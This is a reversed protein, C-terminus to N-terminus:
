PNVAPAPTSAASPTNEHRGVFGQLGCDGLDQIQQNGMAVGVDDIPQARIPRKKFGAILTDDLSKVRFGHSAHTRESIAIQTDFVAIADGLNFSFGHVCLEPREDLPKRLLSM